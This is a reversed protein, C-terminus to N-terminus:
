EKSKVDLLDQEYDYEYYFNDSNNVIKKYNSYIAIAPECRYTSNKNNELCFKKIIEFEKENLEIEFTTTDDCGMNCILYKM